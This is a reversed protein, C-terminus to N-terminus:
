RVLTTFGQHRKRSDIPHTVQRGVIATLSQVLNPTTSGRTSTSTPNTTTTTSVSSSRSSTSSTSSASSFSQGLGAVALSLSSTPSSAMQGLSIGLGTASSLSPTPLLNINMTTIPSSAALATSSSQGLNSGLGTTSTLSSTPLLNLNYISATSIGAWASSATLQSSGLGTMSVVQAVRKALLIATEVNMRTVGDNSNRSSVTTCSGNQFTFGSCDDIGSCIESCSALNSVALSSSINSSTPFVTNCLIEYVSGTTDVLRTGDAGPCIYDTAIASDSTESSVLDSASSKYSCSSSTATYSVGICGEVDSCADVCSQLQPQYTTRITADPEDTNCLLQYVRNTTDSYYM